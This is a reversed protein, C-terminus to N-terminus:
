KLRLSGSITTTVVRGEYSPHQRIDVGSKHGDKGVCVSVRVFVCSVQQQRIRDHLPSMQTGNHVRNDWAPAPRSIESSATSSSAAPLSGSATSSLNSSLQAGIQIPEYPNEEEEEEDEEGIRSTLITSHRKLSSDPLHLNHQCRIINRDRRSYTLM